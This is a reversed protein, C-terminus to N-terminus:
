PLGNDGLVILLFMRPSISPCMALPALWFSVDNSVTEEKLFLSYWTM